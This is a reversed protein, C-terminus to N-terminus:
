EQCVPHTVRLPNHVPDRNSSWGHCRRQLMAIGKQDPSGPATPHTRDGHHTEVTVLVKVDLTQGM